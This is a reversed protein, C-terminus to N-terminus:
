RARSRGRHGALPPAAHPTPQWRVPPASANCIRTDTFGVPLLQRRPEAMAHSCWTVEGGAFYRRFHAACGTENRCAALGEVRRGVFGNHGRGCHIDISHQVTRRSDILAIECAAWKFHEEWLKAGHMLELNAQLARPTGSGRWFHVRETSSIDVYTMNVELHSILYGLGTDTPPHCKKAKHTSALRQEFALLAPQTALAAVMAKALNVSLGMIFGYPFPFPGVSSHGKQRAAVHTPYLRTLVEGPTNAYGYHTNRTDDWGAAWGLQGYVYSRTAHEAVNAV